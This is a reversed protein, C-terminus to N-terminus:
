ALGKQYLKNLHCWGIFEFHNFYDTLHRRGNQELISIIEQELLSGIVILANTDTLEKFPVVPNNGYGAGRETIFSDTFTIKPIRPWHMVISDYVYKAGGGTGYIIIESTEPVIRELKHWAKQYEDAAIKPKYYPVLLTDTLKQFAIFPKENGLLKYAPINCLCDVATEVAILSVDGYQTESGTYDHFALIGGVKIHSHWALIDLM